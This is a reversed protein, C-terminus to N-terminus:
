KGLKIGRIKWSWRRKARDRRSGGMKWANERQSGRQKGGYDVRRQLGCGKLYRSPIERGETQHMLEERMASTTFDTHRRTHYNDVLEEENQCCLPLDNASVSMFVNTESYEKVIRSKRTRKRQSHKRGSMAACDPCDCESEESQDSSSEEVLWPNSTAHITVEPLSLMMVPAGRNHSRNCEGASCPMPSQCGSFGHGNGSAPRVAVNMDLQDPRLYQRWKDRGYERNLHEEKVLIDMRLSAKELELKQNQTRVKRIQLALLAYNLEALSPQKTSLGAPRYQQLQSVPTAGTSQLPFNPTVELSPHEWRFLSTIESIPATIRQYCPQKLTTWLPLINLCAHTSVNM